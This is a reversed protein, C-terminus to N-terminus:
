TLVELISIDDTLLETYSDGMEDLYEKMKAETGSLTHLMYRDCLYLM